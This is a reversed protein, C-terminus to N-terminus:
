LTPVAKRVWDQGVGAGLLQRQLTAAAGRNTRALHAIQGRVSRELAATDQGSRKACILKHVASRIKSRAKRGVSPGHCGNTVYGTVVRPVSPGANGCKKHSVSLGVEKLTKIVPGIANHSGIGSLALDDVYASLTLGLENSITELREAATALHLNALRDSTPAGQPLHGRRTTLRTLLGALGQGMGMKRFIKYVMANTIAPFFGKVDVQAIHSGHQHLTANTLPSRGKVCGHMWEPLPLDVLLRDRIRRQIDKLDEKPNDILRAKRSIEQRDWQNVHWSFRQNNRRALISKADFFLSNRNVQCQGSSSLTPLRGTHSSTHRLARGREHAHFPPCHSGTAATVPLKM